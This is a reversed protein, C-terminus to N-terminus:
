AVTKMTKMDVVAVGVGGHALVLVFEGAFFITKTGASRKM